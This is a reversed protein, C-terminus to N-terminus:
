GNASGESTKSDPQVYDDNDHGPSPSYAEPGPRKSYIQKLYSKYKKDYHVSESDPTIVWVFDFKTERIEGNLKEM